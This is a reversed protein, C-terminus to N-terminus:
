NWGWYKRLKGVLEEMTDEGCKYHRKIELDEYFGGSRQYYVSYDNVITSEYGTKEFIYRALVVIDRLGDGDIDKHAIGKLGYLSAYERMPQFSWVIYGEENVLYVMFVSYEAMTYVGPVVLLKGWKEFERWYSQNKNIQFGNLLLEDLTGATYLFETSYGDVLYSLMFRISKNMGYQNLKDSIRYDQYFAHKSASPQQFLVDGVKYVNGSGSGKKSECFTILLIDILGDGDVDEFSVAAISKIPQKLEGKKQNNTELQETKYIITGDKEVLFIALRNYRQDLAPVFFVEGYNHLILPFVHEEIINFGNKTIQGKTVIKDFRGQYEQYEETLSTTTEAAFVPDVLIYIFLIILFFSPWHKKM